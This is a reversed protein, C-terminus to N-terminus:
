TGDNANRRQQYAAIEALLAADTIAPLVPLPRPTRGKGWRQMRTAQRRWERYLAADTDTIAPLTIDYEYNM